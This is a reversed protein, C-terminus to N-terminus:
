AHSASLPIPKSEGDLETYSHGFWVNQTLSWVMSNKKKLNEVKCWVLYVVNGLEYDSGFAALFKYMSKWAKFFAYCVNKKETPRKCLWWTSTYFPIISKASITAWYTANLDSLSTRSKETGRKKWFFLKLKLEQM